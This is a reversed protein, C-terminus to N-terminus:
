NHAGPVLLRSHYEESTTFQSPSSKPAFITFLSQATKKEQIGRSPPPPVGAPSSPSQARESPM